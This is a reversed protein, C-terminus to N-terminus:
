NGELEFVNEVIQYIEYNSLPLHIDDIPQPAVFDPRMPKCMPKHMPEHMHEHHIMHEPHVYTPHMHHIKDCMIHEHTPIHGHEIMGEETHGHFPPNAYNRM